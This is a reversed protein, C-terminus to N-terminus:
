VIYDAVYYYDYIENKEQTCIIYVYCMGIGVLRQRGAYVSMQRTCAARTHVHTGISIINNVQKGLSFFVFVFFFAFIIIISVNCLSCRVIRSSSVDRYTICWVRGASVRKSSCSPGLSVILIHSCCRWLMYSLRLILPTCVKVRGDHVM